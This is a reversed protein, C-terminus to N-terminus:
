AGQKIEQEEEDASLYVEAKFWRLRAYLTLNLALIALPDPGTSRQMSAIRM